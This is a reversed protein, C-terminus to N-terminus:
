GDSKISGKKPPRPAPPQRLLRKLVEIPDHGALSVQRKEHKAKRTSDSGVTPRHTRSSNPM